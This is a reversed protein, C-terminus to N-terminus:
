EIRRFVTNGFRVKHNIPTDMIDDLLDSASKIIAKEVHDRKRDTKLVNM